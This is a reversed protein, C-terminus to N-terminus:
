LGSINLIGMNVSYILDKSYIGWYVLMIISMSTNTLIDVMLAYMIWLYMYIYDCNMPPYM